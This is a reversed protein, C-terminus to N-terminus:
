QSLEKIYDLGDKNLLCTNLAGKYLFSAHACLDDSNLHIVMAKDQENICRLEYDYGCKYTPAVANSISSLARKIDKRDTLVAVATANGLTDLRMVQLEKTHARVQHLGNNGCGALFMGLIGTLYILRNMVQHKFQSYLSNINNTGVM